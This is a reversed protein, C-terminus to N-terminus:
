LRPHAEVARMHRCSPRGVPRQAVHCNCDVVQGEELSVLHEVEREIPRDIGDRDRDGNGTGDNAASVRITGDGLITFAYSEDYEEWGLDRNRAITERLVELHERGRDPGDPDHDFDDKPM